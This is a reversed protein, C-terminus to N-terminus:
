ENSIGNNLNYVYKEIASQEDATGVIMCECEEYSDFREDRVVKKSYDGFQISWVGNEKVLLSWYVVPIKNSM